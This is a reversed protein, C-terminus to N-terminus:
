FDVPFNRITIYVRQKPPLPHSPDITQWPLLFIQQSEWHEIDLHLDDLVFWPPVRVLFGDGISNLVWDTGSGGYRAVLANTLQTANPSNPYQSTCFLLSANLDIMLRQREELPSLFCVETTHQYITPYRDGM